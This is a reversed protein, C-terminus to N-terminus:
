TNQSISLFISWFLSIFLIDRLTNKVNEFLKNLKLREICKHFADRLYRSMATGLAQRSEYRRRYSSRSNKLLPFFPM